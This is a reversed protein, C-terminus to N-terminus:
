QPMQLGGGTDLAFTELTLAQATAQHADTVGGQFTMQTMVVIEKQHGILTLMDNSPLDNKRVAVGAKGIAPLPTVLYSKVMGGGVTSVYKEAASASAQIMQTLSITSAPRRQDSIFKCRGQGGAMTSWPARDPFAKDIRSVPLWPCEQAHALSSALFLVLTLLTRM